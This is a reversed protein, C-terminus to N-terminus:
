IDALSRDAWKLCMEHHGRAADGPVNYGAVDLESLDAPSPLGCDCGEAECPTGAEFVMTEYKRDCGIEEGPWNDKLWKAELIESGKGHRPHVFEGVTSVLFPGVQTCLHYRCWRACIFHGPNGFYKWTEPPHKM